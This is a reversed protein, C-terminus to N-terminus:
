SATAPWRSLTETSTTTGTRSRIWCRAATTIASAPLASTQVGAAHLLGMLRRTSSVCARLAAASGDGHRAVVGAGASADFRVVLHVDRRAVVDLPGLLGRYATATPGSGSVRTEHTVLRLETASAEPRRRWPLLVSPNLVDVVAPRPPLPSFALVTTLSRDVPLVGIFGGGALPVDFPASERVPGRSRISRM